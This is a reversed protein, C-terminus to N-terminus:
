KKRDYKPSADMNSIITQKNETVYLTRNYYCIMICKDMKRSYFKLQKRNSDNYISDRPSNRHIHRPSCTYKDRNTIYRQFSNRSLFVSFM